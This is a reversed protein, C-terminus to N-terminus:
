YIYQDPLQLVNVWSQLAVTSGEEVSASCQLCGWHSATTGLLSGLDRPDVDASREEGM